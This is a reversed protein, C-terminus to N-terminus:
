RKKAGRKAHRPESRVRVILDYLATKGGDYGAAIARDAIEVSKANPKKKLQARVLREFNAVVSPRGRRAPKSTPSSAGGKSGPRASRTPKRRGRATSKGSAPKGSPRPHEAHALRKRVRERAGAGKEGLLAVLDDLGLGARNLCLIQQNLAASRQRASMGYLSPFPDGKASRRFPPVLAAAAQEVLREAAELIAPADTSTQPDVARFEAKVYQDLNPSGGRRVDAAGRCSRMAASLARRVGNLADHAAKDAKLIKADRELRVSAPVRPDEAQADFVRSLAFCALFAEPGTCRGNGDVIVKPWLVGHEDREATPLSLARNNADTIPQLLEFACGLLDSEDSVCPQRLRLLAIARAGM